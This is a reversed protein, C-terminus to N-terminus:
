AFFESANACVDEEDTSGDEYTIVVPVCIYTGDLFADGVDVDDIADGDEEEEEGENVDDEFISSSSSDDVVGDGDLDVQAVAPVASAAVMAALLAATGLVLLIRRL